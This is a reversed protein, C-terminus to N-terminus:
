IHVGDWIPRCVEAFDFDDDVTPLCALISKRVTDMLLSAVRQGLCALDCEFSPDMDVLAESAKAIRKIADDLSEVGPLLDAATERASRIPGLMSEPLITFRPVDALSKETVLIQEYWLAKLQRTNVGITKARNSLRM